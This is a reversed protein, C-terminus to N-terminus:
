ICQDKRSHDTFNNKLPIGNVMASRLVHNDVNLLFFSICFTAFIFFYSFYILIKKESPQFLLKVTGTALDAVLPDPETGQESRLMLTHM